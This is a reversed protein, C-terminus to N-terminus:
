RRKEPNLANVLQLKRVARHFKKFISPERRSTSDNISGISTQGDSSNSSPSLPSKEFYEVGAPPEISLKVKELLKTQIKHVPQVSIIKIQIEFYVKLETRMRTAYRLLLEREKETLAGLLEDMETDDLLTHNDTHHLIENHLKTYADSEKKTLKSVRKGEECIDVLRRASVIRCRLKNISDINFQKGDNKAKFKEYKIVSSLYHDKAEDILDQWQYSLLSSPYQCAKFNLSALKPLKAPVPADVEAGKCQLAESPVPLISPSRTCDQLFPRTVNSLHGEFNRLYYIAFVAGLIFSLVEM